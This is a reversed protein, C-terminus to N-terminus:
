GTSDCERARRVRKSHRMLQIALDRAAEATLAFMREPQDRTAFHITVVGDTPRPRSWAQLQRYITDDHPHKM